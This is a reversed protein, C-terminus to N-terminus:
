GRRRQPTLSWTLYPKWDAQGPPAIDFEGAVTGDPKPTYVLRFRPGPGPDSTMTVGGGEAASAATVGYRIVHGESDVYLARVADGEVFVTMTDEHRAKGISENWRLVAHGGAAVTFSSGGGPAGWDGLLFGLPALKADLPDAPRPAAAGVPAAAQHACATVLMCALIIRM